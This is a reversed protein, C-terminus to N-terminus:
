LQEPGSTNGQGYPSSATGNKQTSVEPENLKSVPELETETVPDTEVREQTNKDDCYTTENMTAEKDRVEPNTVTENTKEKNSPESQTYSATQTPSTSLESPNVASANIDSPGPDKNKNKMNIKGGEVTRGRLVRSVSIFERKKYPKRNSKPEGVM